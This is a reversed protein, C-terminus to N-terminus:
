NAPWREAEACATQRQQASLKAVFDDLWPDDKGAGRPSCTGNRQRSRTRRTAPASPSSAPSATRPSRTAPMPPASSGAPPPLPIGQSGRRRQVPPRRIRDAGGRQRPPAAAGYWRVSRVPGRPRWHRQRLAPRTPVARRSERGRRSQRPARRCPRRRPSRRHRRPLPPRAPLRGRDPGAGRRGPLVAGGAEPGKGRRAREGADHRRRIARRPRRGQRCPWVMATGQRLRAPHRLRGRVDPRDPDTRDPRGERRAPHRPRLRDPLARAPFAGYALDPPQGSKDGATASATAAAPPALTEDQPAPLRGVPAPGPLFADESFAGTEGFDINRSPAGIPAPAAGNSSQLSGPKQPPLPIPKAAAQEARAGGALGTLLLAVLLGRRM